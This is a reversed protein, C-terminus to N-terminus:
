CSRRSQSESCFLASGDGLRCLTRIRAVLEKLHTQPPTEGALLYAALLPDPLALLEEFARREAPSAQPVLDSLVRELLVDLEKIGRRCHWRLRGLAALGRDAPEV